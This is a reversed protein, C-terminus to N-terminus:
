FCVLPALLWVMIRPQQFRGPVLVYCSSAVIACALAHVTLVGFFALASSSHISPSFFLGLDVLIAAWSWAVLNM